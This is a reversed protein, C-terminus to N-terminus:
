AAQEELGRNGDSRKKWIDRMYMAQQLSDAKIYGLFMKESKHGTIAMITISPMGNLYENTCFSRRASHTTLLEWRKYMKPDPKRSRTLTKEFDKDLSPMKKGIEKLCKNFV